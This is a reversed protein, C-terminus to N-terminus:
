FVVGPQLNMLTEYNRTVLPMESMQEGNILGESSANELNLQADAATVTVTENTGGASLARNVTLADNAHLLLGTVVETKFGPYSVKVTYAGLPLSGATYYGSSTTKLATIDQGRDTNTITVVAGQIIAGSSDTVTGSISGSVSSQATANSGAIALGIGSVLALVCKVLRSAMIVGGETIKSKELNPVVSRWTM